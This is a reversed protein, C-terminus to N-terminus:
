KKRYNQNRRSINIPTEITKELSWGRRDLRDRFTANSMGLHNAWDTLCMTKGKYTLLRNASTNRSQEADTAWRCNEPCYNGDNNIRDLSHSPTPRDGMDAYLNEVSELWRDCVKIGRGGYRKYAHNSERYCRVKMNHWIGYIYHDRLGHTTVGKFTGDRRACGCSFSEGLKLRTSTQRKETGCKCTCLWKGDVWEKVTWYGFTQGVYDSKKM